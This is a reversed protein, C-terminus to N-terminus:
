SPAQPPPPFRLETRYIRTEGLQGDHWSLDANGPDDLPSSYNYLVFRSPDTEDPLLAPFCTDGWGPVDLLHRVRLEARDLHWLSCRKPNASYDALNKLTEQASWSAGPTLEYDGSETVNRRAILYIHGSYTFTLPSDYKKPDHVCSWSGLAGADARCLKSGWGTRDGPENRTVAYLDGRADLEFDTESGGGSEVVGSGAVPAFTLGDTSRLFTLELPLGTFDYIHEGNRYAVLYAVGNREKARWPIYPEDPKYFGAPPSWTGPGNWQSVLMGRPEFSLPSQGLKAFYLLLRGRYSLFRPERVDTGLSFRAEFDWTKEDSSSFLLLSSDPSAFHDRSLRTALYVRGKHRVVDLNNNSRAALAARLDHYERPLGPSPVVQVPAGLTPLLPGQSVPRSDPPPEPSSACGAGFLLLGAALVRERAAPTPSDASTTRM